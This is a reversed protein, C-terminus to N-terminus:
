DTKPRKHGGVNGIVARMDVVRAPYAVPEPPTWVDDSDDMNDNSDVDQNAKQNQHVQKRGERIALGIFTCLGIFAIAILVPMFIDWTVVFFTFFLM